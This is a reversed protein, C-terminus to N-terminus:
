TKSMNEHGHGHRHRHRTNGLKPKLKTEGQRLKTHRNGAM